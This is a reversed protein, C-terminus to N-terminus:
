SGDHRPFAPPAPELQSRRPFCLPMLALSVACFYVVDTFRGFLIMLVLGYISIAEIFAARIVLSGMALQAREPAAETREIKRSLIVAFMQQLVLGMAALLVLILRFLRYSSSTEWTPEKEGFILLAVVLYIIPALFFAGWVVRMVGLTPPPSAQPRQNM